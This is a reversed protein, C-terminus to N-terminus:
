KITVPRGGQRASEQIADWLKAMRLGNEPPSPNAIEGARIALFQEWVTPISAFEVPRFATETFGVKDGHQIELYEGWAGTRLIAESCFVRIDSACSPTTNGCAHFTVLAGSELRGMAVGIIDVPGGHFNLWAAVEVFNQNALDAVTNLMHAGTDFMFGGGAVAPEKKWHGIKADEWGEWIMASISQIAGLEGSRLMSSARRIRPSLSGNFAVVLLRQTRERTAVLDVAEATNIVMPKELLVDLGVELCLKAQRHHYAHPTIIFAVDLQGAYKDLLRALDPENPPVPLGAETFLQAMLQYAETSPECVVVVQNKEPQRLMNRVHGRAMQGCGIVALRTLSSEV